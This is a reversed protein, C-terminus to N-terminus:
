DGPPKPPCLGSPLCANQNANACCQYNDRCPDPPCSSLCFKGFSFSGCYSNAPCAASTCDHTCYGNPIDVRSLGVAFSVACTLGPDCDKDAKCATGIRQHAMDPPPTPMTSPPPPPPPDTTPPAMGADPQDPVSQTAAPDTGGGVGTGAVNFTCGTSLVAVLCWWRM